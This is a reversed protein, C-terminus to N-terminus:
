RECVLRRTTTTETTEEIKCKDNPKMKRLYSIRLHKYREDKPRLYVILTDKLSEDRDAHYHLEHGDSVLVGVTQHIAKWMEADPQTFDIYPSTYWWQSRDSLSYHAMKEPSIIRQIKQVFEITATAEAVEEDRRKMAAKIKYNLNENINNIVEVLKELM